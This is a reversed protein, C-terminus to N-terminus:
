GVEETRLTAKYAEIVRHIAIEIEIDTTLRSLSFRVSSNARQPNFGMARIVHSPEGGSSCAAGASAYLGRHNLAQVLDAASRSPFYVNTTNAARLSGAGNIEAGPVQELVASELKDRLHGINPLTARWDAMADFAAGAGVIGYVNPTGTVEVRLPSGGSRARLYLVGVGKPGHFKHPSLTVADCGLDQVDLDVRGVAQSADVHIQAKASRCIDIVGALDTISGTENNVAGVCVHVPEERLEHELADLDLQGSGDVPVVAIQVGLSGLENSAGFVAAHETAGVVIKRIGSRLACRFALGIAATAGSVFHVETAAKANLFGAESHRAREIGRHAARGPKHQSAPNGYLEDIAAVMAKRVEPLLPTTANNDLYIEQPEGQRGLDGGGPTM